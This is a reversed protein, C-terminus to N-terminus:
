VIAHLRYDNDRGPKAVANHLYQFPIFLEIKFTQPIYLRDMICM